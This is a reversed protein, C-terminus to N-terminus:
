VIFWNFWYDVVWCMCDVFGLCSSGLGVFHGSGVLCFISFCVLQLGIFGVM